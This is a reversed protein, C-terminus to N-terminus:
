LNRCINRAYRIPRYVVNKFSNGIGPNRYLVRTKSVTREALILVMPNSSFRQISPPIGSPPICNDVAKAMQRGEKIRTTTYIKLRVHFEIVEFQEFIFLNKKFIRVSECHIKMRKSSFNSELDEENSSIYIYIKNWDAERMPRGLHRLFSFPLFITFASHNIRNGTRTPEDM